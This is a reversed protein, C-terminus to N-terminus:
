GRHGPRTPGHGVRRLSPGAQARDRAARGPGARSATPRPQKDDGGGAGILALAGGAVCLLTVIVAVAKASM